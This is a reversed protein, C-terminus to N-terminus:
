EASIFQSSSEQDNINSVMGYYLEGSLIDPVDRAPYTEQFYQKYKRRCWLTGIACMILLITFAIGFVIYGLAKQGDAGPAPGINHNKEGAAKKGEKKDQGKPEDKELLNANQLPDFINVEDNILQTLHKDSPRAETNNKFTANDGDDEDEDHAETKNSGQSKNDKSANFTTSSIQPLMVAASEHTANATQNKSPKKVEKTMPIAANVPKLIVKETHNKKAKEEEDKEKKESEKQEKKDKEEAEKIKKEEKAHEEAEKQKEKKEEAKAKDEEKKLEDKIKKQEKEEAEKAKKIEM